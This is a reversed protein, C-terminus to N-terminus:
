SRETARLVLRIRTPNVRVVTVGAPVSIQEPLVHLIVEGAGSGALNVRAKVRDPGLRALAGRLGHLQVTVSDPREGRVELGAPIGDLEIPASVVLDARESTMVFAWLVTSFALAILKLEWHRTLLSVQAAMGQGAGVVVVM